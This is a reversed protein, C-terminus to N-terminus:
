AVTGHRSQSTQIALSVHAQVPVVGRGSPRAEESRICCRQSSGGPLVHDVVKIGTSTFPAHEEGQKARYDRLDTAPIFSDATAIALCDLRPAFSIGPAPRRVSTKPKELFYFSLWLQLTQHSCDSDFCHMFLDLSLRDSVLTIKKLLVDRHDSASHSVIM